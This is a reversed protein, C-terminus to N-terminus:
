EHKLTERDPTISEVVTFEAMRECLPQHRPGGELAWPKTCIAKCVHPIAERLLGRLETALQGNEMAQRFSSDWAAQLREIQDAAALM